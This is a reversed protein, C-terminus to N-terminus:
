LRKTWTQRTPPGPNNDPDQEMGIQIHDMVVTYIAFITWVPLFDAVMVIEVISSIGFSLGRRSLIKNGHHYLMLWFGGMALLDIVPNLLAGILLVSLAFQLLDVLIAFGILGFALGSGIPEKEDM